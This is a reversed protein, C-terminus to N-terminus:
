PYKLCPKKGKACNYITYGVNEIQYGPWRVHAVHPPYLKSAIGRWLSVVSCKM